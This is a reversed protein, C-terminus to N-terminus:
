IGLAHCVAAPIARQGAECLASGWTVPHWRDGVVHFVIFVGRQRQGPNLPHQFRQEAKAWGNNTVRANTLFETRTDFGDTHRDTAVTTMARVQTKTARRVTLAKTSAAATRAETTTYCSDYSGVGECVERTVTSPMTTITVRTCRRTQIDCTTDPAPMIAVSLTAHGETGDAFSEDYACALIPGPQVVWAGFGENFSGGEVTEPRGLFATTAERMTAPCAQTGAPAVFAELVGPPKLEGSAAFQVTGEVPASVLSIGVTADASASVPLGFVLLAALVLVIRRTM